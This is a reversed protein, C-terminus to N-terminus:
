RHVVWLLPALPSAHWALTWALWGCAVPLLVGILHATWGENRLGLGVHASWPLLPVGIGHGYGPAGVAFDCVLHSSWGILAGVALAQVWWPSAAVPIWALVAAIAPLGWWHALQRHGLPGGYGLIEDPVLTDIAKAARQNDLDPSTAGGATLAASACAIGVALGPSPYAHALALVTAVGAFRHSGTNM